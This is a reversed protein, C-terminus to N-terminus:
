SREYWCVGEFACFGLQIYQLLSNHHLDDTETASRFFLCCSASAYLSPPLPPPLTGLAWLSTNETKGKPRTPCCPPWSKMQASPRKRGSRAFLTTPRSRSTCIMWRARARSWRSSSFPSSTGFMGLFFFVVLPSPPIKPALVHSVIAGAQYLVDSSSDYRSYLTTAIRILRGHLMSVCAPQCSPTFPIMFGSSFVHTCKAAFSFIYMDKFVSEVPTPAPLM